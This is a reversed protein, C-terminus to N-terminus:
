RPSVNFVSLSGILSSQCFLLRSAEAGVRGFAEGFVRLWFGGLLLPSRHKRWSVFCMKQLFSLPTCRGIDPVSPIKPPLISPWTKFHLWRFCWPWILVYLCCLFFIGVKWVYDRNWPFFVFVDWKWVNWVDIAWFILYFDGSFSGNWSSFLKGVLM